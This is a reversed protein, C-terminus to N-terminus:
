GARLRTVVCIVNNRGGQYKTHPFFVTMGHGIELHFRYMNCVRLCHVINPVVSLKPKEPCWMVYSLLGHILGTYRWM